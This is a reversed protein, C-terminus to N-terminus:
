ENRRVEKEKRNIQKTEAQGPRSNVICVFTYKQNLSYEQIFLAAFNSPYKFPQLKSLLTYLQSHM